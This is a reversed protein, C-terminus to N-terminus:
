SITACLQINVSVERPGYIWLIQHLHHSFRFPCTSHLRLTHACRIPRSYRHNVEPGSSLLNSQCVMRVPNCRSRLRTSLYLLLWSPLRLPRVYPFCRTRRATGVSATGSSLWKRQLDQSLISHLIPNHIACNSPKGRHGPNWAAHSAPLRHPRHTRTLSPISHISSCMGSGLDLEVMGHSGEVARISVIFSIQWNDVYNTPDSSPYRTSYRVVYLIDFLHVCEDPNREPDLLYLEVINFTLILEHPCLATLKPVGFTIVFPGISDIDGLGNDVPLWDSCYATLLLESSKDPTWHEYDELTKSGEWLHKYHGNIEEVDFGHISVKYDSAELMGRVKASHNTSYSVPLWSDIKPTDYLIYDGNTSLADLFRRM